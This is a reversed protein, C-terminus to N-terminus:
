KADGRERTSPQTLTIERTLSIVKEGRQGRYLTYEGRYAGSAWGDAPRRLGAYALWQAQHRPVRDRREVLLHGDPALLRMEQTDSAQAGYIQVWFVAAPSDATFRATESGYM